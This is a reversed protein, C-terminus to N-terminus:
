FLKKLFNKVAEYAPKATDIVSEVLSNNKLKDGLGTMYTKANSAKAALGPANEQMSKAAQAFLEPKFKHLAFASAGIIASGVFLKKLFSRKVPPKPGPQAQVVQVSIPRHGLGGPAFPRTNLNAPLYPNNYAFSGISM